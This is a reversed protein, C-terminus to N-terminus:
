HRGPWVVVWWELVFGRYYPLCDFMMYHHVPIPILDEPRFEKYLFIVNQLIRKQGSGRDDGRVASILVDYVQRPGVIFVLRM